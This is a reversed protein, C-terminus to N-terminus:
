CRLQLQSREHVYAYECCRPSKKITSHHQNGDLVTFCVKLVSCQLCNDILGMETRRVWPLSDVAAGERTGVTVSQDEVGGVLSTVVVHATRGLAAVLRTGAEVARAAVSRHFVGASGQASIGLAVSLLAAHLTLRM